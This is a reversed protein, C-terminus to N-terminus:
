ASVLDLRYAIISLDDDGLGIDPASLDFEVCRRFGMQEYLRRAARM